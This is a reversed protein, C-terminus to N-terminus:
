EITVPDKTIRIVIEGNKDRIDINLDKNTKILDIAKNSSIEEGQFTFTAGKKAADIFYELPSPPLPALPPQPVGISDIDKEVIIIEHKNIIRSIEIDTEDSINPAKPPVPRNKSNSNKEIIIIEKKEINEDLEKEENEYKHSEKPAKPAPPPELFNPFPAANKKQKKPMLGYIYTLQDVDSKLVRINEGKEIMRNYKKALENYEKVQAKTASNQQTQISDNSPGVIDITVVGYAVLIQEVQEITKKPSADDIKIISKVIMKRENFSLNGNEKSLYKELDEISLLNNKVLVKGNSNITVIIEQDSSQGIIPPCEPFPQATAKQAKSMNKYITELFKLDNLPIVRNKVPIANYKKALKNYKEIDTEQTLEALQVTNNQKGMIVNDKYDTGEPKMITKRESFGLLLTAMLPLLLISRLVIGRKSTQKKMIIFRKKISSYNIANTLGISQNTHFSGNSLYALLTNQYTLQNENKKLVSSDALFEHNLKISKKYLQIIPNFWLVAQMLEIFLVDLSHKQKAHTEEHLLVVDPINNAEYKQKNLFIYNFFTHPPISEQLLVKISFQHKLNPNNHVRSWILLLHRIFRLGFVLVGIGYITWLLLTWNIPLKDVVQVIPQTETPTDINMVRASQSSPAIEVFETIVISPIGLSIILTCLLFYRKFHHMSEQELLLKYFLLFIGLCATSKLLYIVM